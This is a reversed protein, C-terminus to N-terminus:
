GIRFKAHDLIFHYSTNKKKKKKIYKKSKVYLMFCLMAYCLMVLGSLYLSKKTVAYLTFKESYGLFSYM